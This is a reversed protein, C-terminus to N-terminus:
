AKKEPALRLVNRDREEQLLGVSTSTGRQSTTDIPVSVVTLARTKRDRAGESQRHYM